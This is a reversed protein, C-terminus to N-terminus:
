RRKGMPNRLHRQLEKLGREVMTGLLLMMSDIQKHQLRTEMSRIMGATAILLEDASSDIAQLPKKTSTSEDLESIFHGLIGQYKNKLEGGFM